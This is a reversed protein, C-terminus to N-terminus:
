ALPARDRRLRPHRRQRVVAHDAKAKLVVNLTMPLRTSAAGEGPEPMNTRTLRYILRIEGCSDPSVYARDMRNIIGSLM